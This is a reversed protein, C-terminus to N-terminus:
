ALTAAELAVHVEAATASAPSGLVSENRPDYVEIVAGSAKKWSGGVYLPAQAQAISM